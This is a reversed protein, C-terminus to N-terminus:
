VVDAFYVRLAGACGASIASYTIMDWVANPLPNVVVAALAFGASIAVLWCPLAFVLLVSGTIGTRHQLVVISVWGLVGSNLSFLVEISGEGSLLDGMKGYADIADPFLWVLLCNVLGSALTVLGVPWLQKPFEFLRRLM